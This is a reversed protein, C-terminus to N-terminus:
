CCVRRSLTSSNSCMVIEVGLQLRPSCDKTVAKPEGQKAAVQEVFNVQKKDLVGFHFRRGDFHQPLAGAAIKALALCSTSQLVSIRVVTAHVRSETGESKPLVFYGVLWGVFVPLKNSVLFLLLSFLFLFGRLMGLPSGGHVVAGYKLFWYPSRFLWTLQKYGKKQFACIMDCGSKGGGVVLVKLDKKIIEEM